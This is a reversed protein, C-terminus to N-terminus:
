EQSEGCILANFWKNPAGEAEIGKAEVFRNWTGANVRFNVYRMGELAMQENTRLPTGQRQKREAKEKIRDFTPHKSKKIVFKM